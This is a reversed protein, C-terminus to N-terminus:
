EDRGFVLYYHGSGLFDNTLDKVLTLGKDSFKQEFDERNWARLSFTDEYSVEEGDCQIITEEHYVFRNDGMPEFSVQRDFTGDHYNSDQFLMPNALDVLIRGGPKLAKKFTNIAAELMEDTHLYATVTHVCIVLDFEKTPEYVQIPSHIVPYNFGYEASKAQHKETMGESADIAEVDYVLNALELSIRGTGAGADLVSGGNEVLTPVVELTKRTLADIMGGFSAQNVQDYIASWSNHATM